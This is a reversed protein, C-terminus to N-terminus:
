QCPQLSSSCVAGEWMSSIVGPLPARPNRSWLSAKFARGLKRGDMGLQEALTGTSFLANSGQGPFSHQLSGPSPHWLLPLTLQGKEQIWPSPAPSRRRKAPTSSATNPQATSHPPAPPLQQEGATLLPLIQEELLWGPSGQPDRPFSSREKSLRGQAAGHGHQLLWAGAGEEGASGECPGRQRRHGHPCPWCPHGHHKEGLSVKAPM